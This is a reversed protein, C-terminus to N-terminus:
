KTSAAATAIADAEEQVKGAFDSAHEHDIKAVAVAVARMQSSRLKLIAKAIRDEPASKKKAAKPETSKPGMQDTEKPETVPDLTSFQARPVGCAWAERNRENGAVDFRLEEFTWGSLSLQLPLRGELFAYADVQALDLSANGSTYRREFVLVDDFYVELSYGGRIKDVYAIRGSVDGAIRRVNKKSSTM